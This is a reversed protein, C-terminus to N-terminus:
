DYYTTVNVTTYKTYYWIEQSSQYKQIGELGQSWSVGLVTGIHKLTPTILLNVSKKIKM